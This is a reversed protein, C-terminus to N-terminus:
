HPQLPVLLEGFRQLLDTRRVLLELLARSPVAPPPTLLHLPITDPEIPADRYSLFFVPHGWAKGRWLGGTEYTLDVRASRSWSPREWRRPWIGSLSTVVRCRPRARSGSNRM